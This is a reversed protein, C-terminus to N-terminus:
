CKQPARIKLMRVSMGQSKLTQPMKSLGEDSKGRNWTRLQQLSVSTNPIHLCRVREACNSDLETLHQLRQPARLWTVVPFTLALLFRRPNWLTQPCRLLDPLYMKTKFVQWTETVSKGDESKSRSLYVRSQVVRGWFVTHGRRQKRREEWQRRENEGFNGKAAIGSVRLVSFGM